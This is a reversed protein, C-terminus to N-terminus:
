AAQPVFNVKFGRCKARHCIENVDALELDREGISAFQHFVFADAKEGHPVFAWGTADQYVTIDPHNMPNRETNDARIFVFM